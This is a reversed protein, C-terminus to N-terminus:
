SQRALMVVAIIVESRGVPLQTFIVKGRGM